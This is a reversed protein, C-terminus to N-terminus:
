LISSEYRGQGKRAEIAQEFVATVQKAVQGWTYHEMIHRRCEERTPIRCFGQLVTIVKEAIAGPTHDRFLLQGSLKGLIEKTGGYPTGLVPTGCALAETTVLGFGELTVTPVISLDAAQYWRVLDESSLRGLLHVNAHLDLERILQELEERLPGTGAIYLVTGPIMRCIPAMARILNDIGMRRVLRRTCFLVHSSFHIGLQKRLAKRDAAPHFRETDVAGPIVHIREKPISFESSLTNQFYESLVIFSDSRQYTTQEITKKLQYRVFRKVPNGQEEVQSEQAWPGHFHTVIPINKPLVRRSVMSAYLAFHPNFVDPNFAEARQKGSTYFCKIRNYTTLKMGEPLVDRIYGPTTLKEGESTLLGEVMHGHRSMAQLYDAFYQNLGGPIHEAWEMGTALIRM